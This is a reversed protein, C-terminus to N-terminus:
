AVEVEVSRLFGPVIKRDSRQFMEVTDIREGLARILSFGIGCKTLYFAKFKDAPRTTKM